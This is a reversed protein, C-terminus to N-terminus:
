PAVCDTVLYYLLLRPTLNIGHWRSLNLSGTREAGSRNFSLLLNGGGGGEKVSRSLRGSPGGQRLSALHHIQRFQQMSSHFIERGFRLRRSLVRALVGALSSSECTRGSARTHSPRPRCMQALCFYQKKISGRKFSNVFM